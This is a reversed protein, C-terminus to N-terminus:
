RFAPGVQGEFGCGFMGGRADRHGAGDLPGTVDSFKQDSLMIFVRAVDDDTLSVPEEANHRDFLEQRGRCVDCDFREHIASSRSDRRADILLNGRPAGNAMSFRSQSDNISM